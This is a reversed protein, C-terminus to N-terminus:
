TESVGFIKDCLIKNYKHSPAFARKTLSGM